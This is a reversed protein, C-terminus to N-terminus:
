GPGVWVGNDGEGAEFPCVKCGPRYDTHDCPEGIVLAFDGSAVTGNAGEPGECVRGIPHGAEKGKDLGTACWWTWDKLLCQAACRTERHLETCRGDPKISSGRLSCAMDPDPYQCRPPVWDPMDFPQPPWVLYTAVSTIATSTITASSAIVTRQTVATATLTLPAHEPDPSLPWPDILTIADITTASRNAMPLTTAAFITTLTTPYTRDAADPMTSTPETDAIQARVSSGYYWSLAAALQLQSTRM